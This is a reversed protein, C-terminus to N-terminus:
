SSLTKERRPRSSTDRGPGQRSLDRISSSPPSVLARPVAECLASGLAPGCPECGSQPPLHRPLAPGPGKEQADALAGVPESWKKQADQLPISGRIPQPRLCAICGGLRLKGVQLIPFYYYCRNLLCVPSLRCRSRLSGMRTGSERSHVTHSCWGQAETEGRIVEVTGSSQVRGSSPQFGVRGRTAAPGQVPGQLDRCRSRVQGPLVRRLGVQGTLM